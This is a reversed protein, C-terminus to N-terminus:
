SYNEENGGEKAAMEAMELPTPSGSGEYHGFTAAPIPNLAYYQNVYVMRPM